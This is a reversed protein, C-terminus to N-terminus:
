HKDNNIKKDNKKEALMHMAMVNRIHAMTIIGIMKKSKTVVAIDINASEMKSLADFLNSKSDIVPLIVALDGATNPYQNRKVNLDATAIGNPTNMIFIHERKAHMLKYMEDITTNQKITIFQRTVLKAVTLGKTARRIKVIEVESRLGGYLIFVILLDFIIVFEMYFVSSSVMYAYIFTGIIILLMSYKSVTATIMTSDYLDHKRQMYSRFVRGGDLPFAPILNFVGLLINMEFLLQVVETIIGQPTFIVLVGFIFGLFISMIPGVISVNFEVRPDINTQDIISAGGLPLLIIKKVKIGNRQSTVSHALEHILVCVFLLVFVVALFPSILTFLFLLIFTWDLEIDIGFLRGIKYSGLAM